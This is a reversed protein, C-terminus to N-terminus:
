YEEVLFDDFIYPKVFVQIGAQGKPLCTVSNAQGPWKGSAQTKFVYAHPAHLVPSMEKKILQWM